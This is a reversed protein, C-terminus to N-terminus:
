RACNGLPLEEYRVARAALSFEPFEFLMDSVVGNAFTVSRLTYVPVRDGPANEYYAISVPWRTVGDLAPGRMAPELRANREGELPRGITAITDFVKEGGESGDFLRANFLRDGRQAAEVLSRMLASPFAIAGDFDGKAGRPKLMAVSVSGDGVRKATGDADRTVQGNIRSHVTFRFQQGAGEEWLNIKFDLNKAQGDADALSTAQRFSTAFGECANGTFELAIVGEARTISGGGKPGLSVEYAIRHPQLLVPAASVPAASIGLVFLIPLVNKM